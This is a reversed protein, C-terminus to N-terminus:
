FSWGKRAAFEPIAPMGIEALPLLALASGVKRGTALRTIGREVVGTVVRGDDGLLAAIAAPLEEAAGDVLILDFPGGKKKASADAPTMTSVTAGMAAALAALYGNTSIVLVKEGASLGAETLMRGHVLPAPLAHGDGLVVARDIYANAKLAEPVHDERAVRDFAALVAPDNVGSVRLQSDIMARRATAPREDLMTM